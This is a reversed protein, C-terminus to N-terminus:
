LDCFRSCRPAEVLILTYPKGTSTAGNRTAVIKKIMKKVACAATEIAKYRGATHGTPMVVGVDGNDIHYASQQVTL